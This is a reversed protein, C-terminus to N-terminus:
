KQILINKYSEDVLTELESNHLTGDLIVSIWNKKNMHYAAYIGNKSLLKEIENKDAKLNMVEVTNTLKSNKDVKNLAVSGILAYWKNNKKNRFVGYTPLNEWLFEPEDNYKERIYKSIYIAQNTQFLQRQACKDRIDTLVNIFEERIESSFGNSNEIRFNTYEDNISLDFVKGIIQKDFKVVIKFGEKSFFFFFFLKGYKSKFGYSILKNKDIIYNKFVKEEIM